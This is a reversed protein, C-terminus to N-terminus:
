IDVSFEGGDRANLRAYDGLGRVMKAPDTFYAFVDEPSPKIEM